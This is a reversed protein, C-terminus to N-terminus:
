ACTRTDDGIPASYNCDTGVPLKRGSQTWATHFRARASFACFQKREKRREITVALATRKKNLTISVFSEVSLNSTPTKVCGPDFGSFSSALIHNGSQGQSRVDRSATPM